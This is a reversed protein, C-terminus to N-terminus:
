RCAKESKGYLTEEVFTVLGTGVANHTHDELSIHCVRTNNPIEVGNLIIDVDRPNTLASLEPSVIIVERAAGAAVVEKLDFAMGNKIMIGPINIWKYWWGRLNLNSNTQVVTIPLNYKSNDYKESIIRDKIIGLALSGINQEHSGVPDLVKIMEIQEGTRLYYASAQAIARRGGESHGWQEIKNSPYNNLLEAMAADVSVGFALFSGESAMKTIAKRTPITNINNIVIVQKSKPLNAILYILEQQATKNQINGGWGMNFIIVGDKALAHKNLMYYEVKAGDDAEAVKAQDPALESLVRAIIQNDKEIPNITEISGDFTTIRGSGYVTSHYVLGSESVNIEHYAGVASITQPATATVLMMSILIATLKRCWLGVRPKKIMENVM